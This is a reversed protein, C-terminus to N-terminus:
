VEDGVGGADDAEVWERPQRIIQFAANLAARRSLASPLNAPLYQNGLGCQTKPCGAACAMTCLLRTSAPKLALSKSLDAMRCKGCTRSSRPPSGGSSSKELRSATAASAQWAWRLAISRRFNESLDLSLMPQFRRGSSSALPSSPRSLLHCSKEKYDQATHSRHYLLVEAFDLHWAM